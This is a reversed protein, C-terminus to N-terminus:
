AYGLQARLETMEPISEMGCRVQEPYRLQGGQSENKRTSNVQPLVTAFQKVASEMSLGARTLIDDVIKLPEKVFREHKVSIVRHKALRNFDERAYRNCQYYQWAAVEGVTKRHLSDWGPVLAFKWYKGSYDRLELDDAVPYGARAFRPLEIPGIKDTTHWGAVLSDINDEPRRRNWVFLADPFIRNLLSVRLSNKPTKELFRITSPKGIKSFYGLATVTAMTFARGALGNTSFLPSPNNVITSVNMAEQYFQQRIAEVVHEDADAV